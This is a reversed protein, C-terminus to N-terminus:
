VTVACQTTQEQIPYCWKTSDTKIRYCWRTNDTRTHPLVVCQDRNKYQTVGSQKRKRYQTVDSRATQGQLLHFWETNETGIGPLLSHTIHAAPCSQCAPLTDPVTYLPSSFNVCIIAFTPSAKETQGWPSKCIGLSLWLTHTRTNSQNKEPIHTKWIGMLYIFHLMFRNM